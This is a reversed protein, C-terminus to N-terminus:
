EDRRRMAEEFMDDFLKDQRSRPDPDPRMHVPVFAKIGTAVSDPKRGNSKYYPCNVNCTGMNGYDPVPCPTNACSREGWSM